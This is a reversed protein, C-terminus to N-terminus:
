KKKASIKGLYEITYKEGTIQKLESIYTKCEKKTTLLAQPNEDFSAPYGGKNLVRYLKM